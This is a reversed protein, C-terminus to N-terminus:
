SRRNLLTQYEKILFDQDVILVEQEHITIDKYLIKTKLLEIELKSNEKNTYIFGTTVIVCVFYFLLQSLTSKM